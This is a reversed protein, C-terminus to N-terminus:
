KSTPTTSAIAVRIGWEGNSCASTWTNPAARCAAPLYRLTKRYGDISLALYTLPSADTSWQSPVHPPLHMVMEFTSQHEQSPSLETEGRMGGFVVVVFWCRRMTHEQRHGHTDCASHRKCHRGVTTGADGQRAKCQQSDARAFTPARGTIVDM